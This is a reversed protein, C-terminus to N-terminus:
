LAAEGQDDASFTLQTVAGLGGAPEATQGNVSLLVAGANGLTLSVEDDAQWTREEGESLTGEFDVQGDVTVRMWSDGTLSLSIQVVGPPIAPEPDEVVPESTQDGDTSTPDPTDEEALQGEGNTVLNTIGIVGGIGVLIVLIAVVPVIPFAIARRSRRSSPQALPKMAPVPQAKAPASPKPPPSAASASATVPHKATSPSSVPAPEPNPRPPPSPAEPTVPLAPSLTEAAPATPAPSHHAQGQVFFEDSLAMGDLKLAEGYRRIFGRVFIPEPLAEGDGSEIAQLLSPRIFVVKGLEELSRGQEQRVQSLYEGISRLQELQTPDLNAV